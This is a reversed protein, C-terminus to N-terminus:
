VEPYVPLRLLVELGHTRKPFVISGNHLTMIAEVLALGLGNGILVKNLDDRKEPAVPQFFREGLRAKQNEPVGPGSDTVTLLIADKHGELRATVTGGKPTFKIANDFINTIAQFLLNPDGMIAPVPSTTREFILSINKQESMPTYLEIAAKTLEAINLTEFKTDDRGSQLRAIRLLAEFIQGMHDAQTEANEILQDLKPDLLEQKSYDEIDELDARLRALPTRLEHAINDSVNTVTDLLRQIRDLMTNLTVSLNDFDDGSGRVPIRTELNGDMVTLATKNIDNLRRTVALSIVGGCLLGLILALGAAWGLTETILEEREDQDEIDRGAILTVGGALTLKKLLASNESYGTEFEVRSWGESQFVDADLPLNGALIKNQNSLLLYYFPHPSNEDGYRELVAILQAEDSVGQYLASLEVTETQVQTQIIELPQKVTFWYALGLLITVLATFLLATLLAMRLTFSDRINSLFTLTLSM